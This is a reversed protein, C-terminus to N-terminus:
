EQCLWRLGAEFIAEETKGVHVPIKLQKAYKEGPVAADFDETCGLFLAQPRPTDPAFLDLSSGRVANLEGFVAELNARTLRPLAAGSAAAECLAAADM